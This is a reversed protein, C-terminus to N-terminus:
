VQNNILKRRKSLSGFTRPLNSNQYHSYSHGIGPNPPEYFPVHNNNDGQQEDLQQLFSNKSFTIRLRAYWHFGGFDVLNQGQDYITVGFNHLDLNDVKIPVSYNPCYNIMNGYTATVPVVAVCNSSNITAMNSYLANTLSPLCIFLHSLGGLNYAKKAVITGNSVVSTTTASEYLNTVYGKLNSTNYPISTSPFTDSRYGMIGLLGATESDDILSMYTVIFPDTASTGNNLYSKCYVNRPPANLSIINATSLSFPAITQNASWLTTPNAHLVDSIQGSTEIITAKLSYDYGPGTWIAQYQQSTSASTASQFYFDTGSAATNKYPFYWENIVNNVGTQNLYSLLSTITYNGDPIVVRKVFIIGNTGVSTGVKLINNQTASSINYVSNYCSFHVLEVFAVHDASMAPVDTLTVNIPNHASSAGDSKIIVDVPAFLPDISCDSM